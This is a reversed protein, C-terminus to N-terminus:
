SCANTNLPSINKQGSDVSESTISEMVFGASHKWTLMLEMCLKKSVSKVKFSIHVVPKLSM